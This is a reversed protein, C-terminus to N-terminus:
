RSGDPGGQRSHGGLGPLWLGARGGRVQVPWLADGVEGALAMALNKPTHFRERERAAVFERLRMTLETLM